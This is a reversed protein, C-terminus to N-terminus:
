KIRSIPFAIIPTSLRDTKSTHSIREGRVIQAPNSADSIYYYMETVGHYLDLNFVSIPPATGIGPIIIPPLEFGFSDSDTGLANFFFDLVFAADDSVHTLTMNFRQRLELELRRTAYDTLEGPELYHCRVQVTKGRMAAFDEEPLKEMAHDISFSMLRQATAGNFKNYIERTSCSCVLLCLCTIILLRMM